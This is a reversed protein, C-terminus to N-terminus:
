SASSASRACTRAGARAGAGAAGCSTKWASGPLLAAGHWRGAFRKIADITPMELGRTGPSATGASRRSWGNPPAPCQVHHAVFSESGLTTISVETRRALPHTPPVVFVLEDKYVVVSRIAPELPRHTTVGPIWPM